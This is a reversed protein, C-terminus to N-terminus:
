SAAPPGAQDWPPQASGLHRSAHEGRTEWSYPSAPAASPAAHNLRAEQRGSLPQRWLPQNEKETDKTGKLGFYISSYFLVPQRSAQSWRQHHAAPSPSLAPAPSTGAQQPTPRNEAAQGHHAPERKPDLPSRLLDPQNHVSSSPCPSPTTGQTSGRGRPLDQAERQVTQGDKASSATSLAGWHHTEKVARGGKGGPIQAAAAVATGLHPSEQQHCHRPFASPQSQSLQIGLTLPLSLHVATRPARRM